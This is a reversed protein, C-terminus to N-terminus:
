PLEFPRAGGPYVAYGTPPRVIENHGPLVREEGEVFYKPTLPTTSSHTLHLPSSYPGRDTVIRKQYVPSLTIGFPLHDAFNRRSKPPPRRVPRERTEIQCLWEKWVNWGVLILITVPATVAWFIWFQPSIELNSGGSYDIFFSSM